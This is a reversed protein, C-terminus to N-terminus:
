AAAFFAVVRGNTSLPFTGLRLAGVDRAPMPVTLGGSADAIIHIEGRPAGTGTQEESPTALMVVYPMGPLLGAFALTYTEASSLTITVTPAVPTSSM